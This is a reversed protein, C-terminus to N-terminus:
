ISCSISVNSKREFISNFLYRRADHDYGLIEKIQTIKRGQKTRAAYIIINFTSAIESCIASHPWNIGSQLLMNELRALTRDASTAHLSAMMGDHGTNAATLMDLAEAGRVEGYLIRDPRFRLAAQLLLGGTVGKQKNTVVSVWNPVSKKIEKTDEICFVRDAQDIEQVMANLLTTKGSSTGGSILINKKSIVIERLYAMLEQPFVDLDLLNKLNLNVPNHKRISIATGITSTPNTIIALRFGPYEADQIGNVGGPEINKGNRSAILQALGATEIESIEIEVKRMVGNTEIWVDSPGNVMIEQVNPNSFHPEFRAFARLLAEDNGVKITGFLSSM